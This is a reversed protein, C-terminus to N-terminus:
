FGIRNKIWGGWRQVKGKVKGLPSRAKSHAGKTSSRPKKTKQAREHQRKPTRGKETNALSQKYDTRKIDDLLKHAQQYDSDLRLAAKASIEAAELNNRRFYNRGQKLYVKQISELLKLTDQDNADLRLAELITESAAQLKKMEFYTDALNYYARQYDPKIAIARKLLDVAKALEDIERYVFSLDSYTVHSRKDIRIAQQYSKLAKTFAKKKRYDDGDEKHKQKIKELLDQALKYNPDIGLAERASKEGKEPKELKLYAEGIFRHADKFNKDIEVAKQFEFIAQTYEERNFHYCGVGLPM